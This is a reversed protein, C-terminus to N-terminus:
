NTREIYDDTAEIFAANGAIMGLVGPFYHGWSTSEPDHRFVHWTVYEQGYSCLCVWDGTDMNLPRAAILRAGNPMKEGPAMQGMRPRVPSYVLPPISPDAFHRDRCEQCLWLRNDGEGCVWTPRRRM